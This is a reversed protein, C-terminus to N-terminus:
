KADSAKLIKKNAYMDKDARNFVTRISHDKGKIYDSLGTAIVPKNQTKNKKVTARFSEILEKRKAYDVGELIIIFEDGGYRYVDSYKFFDKILACSETLYRDGIDHGLADNINKLYNVDFVLVAFEDIEENRILNDINDEFEVYAHKSKAGTLPDSYALEMANSLEESQKEVKQNVESLSIALETKESNVVHTKILSIGVACGLTYLPMSPYLLQLLISVALFIGFTGIIICRIVLKKKSFKISIFAYAAVIVYLSMLSTLFAYRAAHPTYVGDVFEFFIPQFFNAILISICFLPVLAALITAIKGNLSDTELYKIIYRAWLFVAVSMFLFYGVTVIFSATDNNVYDFIGWLIDNVYFLANAIIFVRYQKFAPIKEINGRKLIVEFHTILLILIAVIGVLSYSM